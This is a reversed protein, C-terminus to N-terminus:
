GHIRHRSCTRHETRGIWEDKRRRANTKVPTTLAREVSWGRHLRAKITGRKVDLVDEWESICKTTESLTLLCAKRSNRSQDTRTAWRVNRPFYGLSNDTRDLSYGKEGYHPLLSVHTVFAEFSTRWEICIAIGREGYRKYGIDNPNECRQIMHGWTNHLPHNTMGHTRSTIVLKSKRLCGCSKTHGSRMQYGHIIATKGCDCQCLWKVGMRTNEAPSIVMLLGFKQGSIDKAHKALKM